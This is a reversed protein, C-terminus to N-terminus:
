TGLLMPMSFADGGGDAIYGPRDQQVAVTTPGGGGSPYSQPYPSVTNNGDNPPPRYNAQQPYQGPLGSAARPTQQQNPPSQQYQYQPAAQHPNNQETSHGTPYPSAPTQEQNSNPAATPASMQPPPPLTSSIASIWSKVEEENPCLFWHVTKAGRVCFSLVEKSKYHDPLDPRDPVQSTNTGFAILEPTGKLVVVGKSEQWSKGEFSIFSNDDYLVSHVERWNSGFFRRKYWLMPGSKIELAMKQSKGHNENFGDICKCIKMGGELSGEGNKGCNCEQFIGDKEIFGDKSKCIKKEGDLSCEGNKGCYCEQCIGDKEIFGNKCKCIKKEGDLSSEGNKGCDCEQCIGDKDIIDDKCKCIKKGGDLSCEGNKGCNCDQCIGDKEIFGDKCMCIKKGGDLSSEGNKGCNCESAAKPMQQQNPTCGPPPQQTQHPATQHPNNQQTSHGTPYSSAPTQEQNSNPPATPAPMQPPPPIRPPAPPPPLTSAIAGMWSTVEEENPCLFWHVTKTGREGFSLLGKPEYHGPLDPRDPIQSTNTGFAILEPADKLVVSGKSEQRSYDEYSIFSSDDYLVSHVGRWNSGFFRRKYWLMPGSKIELEMKSLQVSNEDCCGM